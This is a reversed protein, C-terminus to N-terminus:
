KRKGASRAKKVLGAAAIVSATAVAVLFLRYEINDEIVKLVRDMFGTNPDCFPSNALIALEMGKPLFYVNSQEVYRGDDFSWFGGKAYIRGLPTDRKVDLGFKRDLMTQ